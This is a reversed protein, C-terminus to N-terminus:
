RAGGHRPCFPPANNAFIARLLRELGTTKRSCGNRKCTRAFGGWYPAEANRAMAHWADNRIKRHGNM